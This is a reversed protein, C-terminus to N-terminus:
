PEEKFGRQLARQIAGMACACEFLTRGVLLLSVVALVDYAAWYQDLAAGVTLATFVVTAVVGESRFLM